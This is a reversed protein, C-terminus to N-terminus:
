DMFSSKSKTEFALSTLLFEVPLRYKTAIVQGSKHKSLREKLNRTSGIYQKNDKLSLLVYTYYFKCKM